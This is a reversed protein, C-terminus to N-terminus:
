TNITLDTITEFTSKLLPLALLLIATDAARDMINALTKEGSEICIASIGRALIEIGCVKLLTSFVENPEKVFYSLTSAFDIIPRLASIVYIGITLVAFITVWSSLKSDLLKLTWILSVSLIIVGCVKLIDM